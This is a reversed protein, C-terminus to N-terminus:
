VKIGIVTIDDNTEFDGQYEKITDVFDKKQELMPKRYIDKLLKKVRKKGFSLEKAGGIQDWYGDSSIYFTTEKDISVCHETFKYDIDSDKYGISHRDGKIEKIEGEQIYFISNRASAFKAIKEKKNYYMIQGDWGANSISSKTEQNLLIKITRNFYEMIWAPSVEANKDSLIHSVIEREVAKVLMTVFAGPVGHGTCDIVMLLCEDEHRLQEFLYIDGGVIDKPQWITFYDKFYSQFLTNNPILAGQILSAYEISERTHKHIERVEAEIAKQKTIDTIMGIYAKENKYMTPTVSLLATFIKGSATKFNQELNEVRGVTTLLEILREQQNDVSYLDDIYSGVIEDLPMEYQSEAYKNAYLIKRSKQGTVLVPLL